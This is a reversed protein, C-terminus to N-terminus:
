CNTLCQCLCSTKVQSSWLFHSFDQSILSFDQYLTLIWSVWLNSPGDDIWRWKREKENYSLGIWYNNQNIQLQLFKQIPFFVNSSLVKRQKTLLSCTYCTGAIRIDNRQQGARWHKLGESYMKTIEWQYSM